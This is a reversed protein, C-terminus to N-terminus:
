ECVSEEDPHQMERVPLTTESVRQIPRKPDDTNFNLYIEDSDRCDLSCIM